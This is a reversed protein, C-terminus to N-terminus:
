AGFLPSPASQLLLWPVLLIASFIEWFTHTSPSPSRGLCHPHPQAGLSPDDSFASPKEVCSLPSVSSPVRTCQRHSLLITCSSHFFLVFAGGFILFLIVLLGVEPHTSFLSSIPIEFLYSCDHESCGQERRAFLRFTWRCIFLSFTASVYM